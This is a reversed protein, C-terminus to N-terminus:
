RRAKSDQPDLAAIRRVAVVLYPKGYLTESLGLWAKVNTPEAAVLHNFVRRATGTDGLRLDLQGRILNVTRDPNLAAATNLDSRARAALAPTVNSANDVVSQAASLNHAQVIGLAFFAGAVLAVATAVIRAVTM